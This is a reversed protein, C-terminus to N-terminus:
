ERRRRRISLFALGAMALALTATALGAVATGTRSLGGTGGGTLTGDQKGAAPAPKLAKRAAELKALADNVDTQSVTADDHVSIANELAARFAKWTVPTYDAEKLASAAAIASELASKNVTNGETPNVTVTFTATKTTDSKLAVTVTKEGATTTDFGSPDALEYDDGYTLAKTTGDSLTATVELGNLDPGADGVTYTTKDPAKTVAISEVTAEPQVSKATVSAMANKLDATAKTVEAQTADTKKLLKGAADIASQLADWAEDAEYDAAEYGKAEALASELAATDVKATGAAKTWTVMGTSNSNQVYTTGDSRNNTAYFPIAQIDIDQSTDGDVYKAKGTIIMMRSADMGEILTGEAAKLTSKEGRQIQIKRPDFNAIGSNLQANGAKEMSFVLPGREIAVKGQQDSVKENGETLKIEMPFGLSVVDGKVWTRDISVYGKVAEAKVKKGNVKIVPTEDSQGKLWSPIRVKLTFEKSQEPSVTMEVNGDNPYATKQTVGVKVGSVSITAESGIYMNVFVNDGHTTYMYESLRALTRMLNPPCCACAFWSSRGLTGGNKTPLELRNAYYFRDGELNVGDLIANYMAREVVDAYKADEHVLNMRLNWNALAISACIEAYSDNSPLEYDAGFDEGHSAVGISGTVYSKRNVVSDWVEDLAHLYSTETEGGVLRAVDTAGAYLYNARVAHGVANTEETFPLADQSYERQGSSYGDYQSDRLKPDEGRRDILTKATQVYKDGAGEGEHQEVLESFKALALEIEEHGPVEHRTGNPGFLSVIEDAYRKAAVYLSYDPDGIGERYRTYAVASEIFHGANYMEHNNFNRWRHTGPARGGSYSSSRLTFHTNIYGDAYQVKQILDVWEALKKELRAKHELVAPDTEDKMAALTYSIAELSKYIDSDQFVFGQFASYEEGNLKKVANEFNPEGGSAEEIHGISVELSKMMNVKQKPSWFDDTLTVNEFTVSQNATSAAVKSNVTIEAEAPFEVGNVSVTGTVTFTKGVQDAAYKAPDVKDWTVPMLKSDFTEGFDYSVTKQGTNHTSPTSDDFQIGDVVVSNPLIPATGAVTSTKYTDVGTVEEVAVSATATRTEGSTRDTMAVKVTGEGKKAGAVTVTSGTRDGVISLADGETSWQYAFDGAYGSPLPSATYTANEGNVIKAKGTVKAAVFEDTVTEGYVEWEGIGIGTKADVGDPRDVLLRIRTTKVPHKADIAVGNWTRNKGLTAGDTTGVGVTDVSKGDADIMGTVDTWQEAAHDWYQLRASKPYRVGGGDAWWMVRMSQINRPEDFTLEIPQPYTLDGAQKWTNWSTKSDTALNMDNVNATSTGSNTYGASVVGEPAINKGQAIGPQFDESQAGYVEWESIGIGNRGSGNREITMRIQTTTVDAAFLVENWYKNAGNLGNGDATDYKVGMRDTAKNDEDAMGTLRRWEGTADDLYEITASKPFTVNDTSTIDNSDAWWIVRSGSLQQPADWKLWVKTPYDVGGQAWTNWSTAAAGALYGNNVNAVPTNEKDAGATAYLALNVLKKGAWDVAAQAPLATVLMALAALVGVAARFVRSKLTHDRIHELM